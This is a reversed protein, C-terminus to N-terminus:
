AGSEGHDKVQQLAGNLLEVASSALLTDAQAVNVQLNIVQGKAGWREPFEREARWRQHGLLERARSVSASDESSELERERTALRHEIGCERAKHYDPDKALQNSLAAPSIGFSRAIEAAYEGDHVRQIIQDKHQIAVATM